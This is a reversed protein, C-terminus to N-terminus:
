KLRANQIAIEFGAPTKSITGNRILKTIIRSLNERATGLYDALEQITYNDIKASTAGHQTTANQLLFAILKQETNKLSLQEIKFTFEKLMKAQIAIINLAIQPHNKVMTLFKERSISLLVSNKKAICSAPYTSGEFMPAEAVIGYKQVVRLIHEKGEQTAKFVKIQGDVVIFLAKADHGEQFILENKLYEIKEVSNEITSLSIEDLNAFLPLKKLFQKTM